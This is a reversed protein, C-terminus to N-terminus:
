EEEMDAMEEFTKENITFENTNTKYIEYLIHKIVKLEHLVNKKM